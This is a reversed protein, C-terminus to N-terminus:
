PNSKKLYFYILISLGAAFFCWVSIFNTLFYGAATAASVLVLLGFIRAEKKSSAILSGCVASFYSIFIPFKFPISINYFISYHKIETSVPNNSIVFLLYLSTAIGIGLFFRMIRRTKLDLTYVVFPIYIPWFLFAIFLFIYSLISSSSEAKLFLWQLAEALQQMAFIIPIVAILKKKKPAINLSAIGLSTLVGSTIFSASPSFCM